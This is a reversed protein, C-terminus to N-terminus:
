LSCVPIGRECGALVTALSPYRVQINHLAVQHNLNNFADAADVILIGQTTSNDFIERM